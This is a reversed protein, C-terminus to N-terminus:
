PDRRNPLIKVTQCDRNTKFNFTICAHGVVASHMALYLQLSCHAMEHDLTQLSNLDICAHGVIAAPLPSRMTVHDLTVHNQINGPFCKQNREQSKM